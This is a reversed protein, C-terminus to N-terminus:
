YLFCNLSVCVGLLKASRQKVPDFFHYVRKIFLAKQPFYKKNLSFYRNTCQCSLSYITDFHNLNQPNYAFTYISSGERGLKKKRWSVVRFALFSCRFIKKLDADTTKLVLWYGQDLSECCPEILRSAHPCCVYFLILFFFHKRRFFSGTDSDKEGWLPRTPFNREIIGAVSTFLRNWCQFYM